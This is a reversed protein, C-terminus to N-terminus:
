LVAGLGKFEKPTCGGVGQFEEPYLGLVNSDKLPLAELEEPYVWFCQFEKPYLGGGNSNTLPLAELVKSYKLHTPM